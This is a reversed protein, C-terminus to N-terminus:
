ALDHVHAHNKPSNELFCCVDNTKVFERVSCIKKKLHCIAGDVM